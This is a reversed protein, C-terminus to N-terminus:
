YLSDMTPVVYTGAVQAAPVPMATPMGAAKAAEDGSKVSDAIGIGAGVAGAVAGAGALLEPVGLWALWSTAAAGSELVEGAEETAGVTSLDGLTNTAGSALKSGVNAADTSINNLTSLGKTLFSQGEEVADTGEDLASGLSSKGGLRTLETGDGEATAAADGGKTEGDDYGPAGKEQVIGREGGGPKVMENYNHYNPEEGEPIPTSDGDETDKEVQVPGSTKPEVAAVTPEQGQVSDGGIEQNAAGESKSETPVGARTRASDIAKSAKDKLMKTANSRLRRISKFRNIGKRAIKAIPVGVGAGGIGSEILKQSSDSLKKANEFLKDTKIGLAKNIVDVKDKHQNIRDEVGNRFANLENTYVQSAM